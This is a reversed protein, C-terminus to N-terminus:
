WAKHYAYMYMYVQGERNIVVCPFAPILSGYILSIVKLFYM